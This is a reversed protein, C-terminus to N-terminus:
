FFWVVILLRPLMDTGPLSLTSRGSQSVHAELFLLYQKGFAYVREQSFCPEQGWKMFLASLQTWPYFSPSHKRKLVIGNERPHRNGNLHSRFYGKNKNKTYTLLAKSINEYCFSKFFFCLVMIWQLGEKFHVTGATSHKQIWLWTGSQEVEDAKTVKSGTLKKIEWSQSKIRKQKETVKTKSSNEMMRAEEEYPKRTRPIVSSRM